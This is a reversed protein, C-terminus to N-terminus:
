TPTLSLLDTVCEMYTGPMTLYSDQMRQSAKRVYSALEEATTVIVDVSLKVSTDKLVEKTITEELIKQAVSRALDSRIHEMASKAGCIVLPNVITNAAYRKM